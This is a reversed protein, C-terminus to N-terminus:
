KEQFQKKCVPCEYIHLMLRVYILNLKGTKCNPCTNDIHIPADRRIPGVLELKTTM